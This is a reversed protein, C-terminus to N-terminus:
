QAIQIWGGEWGEDFFPTTLTPGGRVFHYECVNLISISPELPPPLPGSGEVKVWQFIMGDCPAMM